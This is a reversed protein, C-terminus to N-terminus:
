MDKGNLINMYIWVLFSQIIRELDRDSIQLSLSNESLKYVGAMESTSFLM